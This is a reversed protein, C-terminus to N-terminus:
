NPEQQLLIDDLVRMANDLLEYTQADSLASNYDSDDKDEQSQLDEGNNL